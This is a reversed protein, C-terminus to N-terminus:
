KLLINQLFESNETRCLYFGAAAIEIIQKDM